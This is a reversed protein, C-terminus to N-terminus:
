LRRRRRRCLDFRLGPRDPRHRIGFLAPRGSRVHIRPPGPHGHDDLRAAGDGFLGGDRGDAARRPAGGDPRRQAGRRRPDGHRLDQLGSDGRLGPRVARRVRQRVNEGGPRLRLGVPCADGHGVLRVARRRRLRRRQEDGPQGPTRQADGRVIAFRGRHGGRILYIGRGYLGRRYHVPLRDRVETRSCDLRLGRRHFRVHGDHDSCRHDGRQLEDDARRPPPGFHDDLPLVAPGRDGRAPRQLAIAVEGPPLSATSVALAPRYALVADPVTTTEGETVTVTNALAHTSKNNNYESVYDFRGADANFFVKVQGAPVQRVIYEGEATTLASSYGTAKAADQAVVTVGAIGNDDIDTVRGYIMGGGGPLTIDIGSTTGGAVVTVTGAGAYSAADPYWHPIRDGQQNPKAVVRYAGPPLNKLIYTAPGGIPSIAPAVGLSFDAATDFAIVNLNGANNNVQGTITGAASLSADIGSTMEGAAVAVTGADKILRVDPYYESVFNAILNTAANFFLKWSGAPIGSLAYDGQANTKTSWLALGAPDYIVVSIDSIPTGGGDTVHGSVTGWTKQDLSADVGPTEAESSAGVVAASAFTARDDYWENIMPTGTPTRFRVAFNGTQLRDIMYHGTADTFAYGPRSLDSAHVYALARDLPAGAGNTIQGSIAGGYDLTESIFEWPEEPSLTMIEGYNFM